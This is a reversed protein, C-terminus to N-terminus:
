FLGSYPVVCKHVSIITFCYAALRIYIVMAATPLLAINSYKKAALESGVCKGNGYSDKGCQEHLM